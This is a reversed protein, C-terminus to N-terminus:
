VELIMDNLIFFYLFLPAGVFWFFLSRVLLSSPSSSLCPFFSVSGYGAGPADHAAEPRQVLLSVLPGAGAAFASSRPCRQPLLAVVLESQRGWAPHRRPAGVRQLKGYFEAPLGCRTTAHTGRRADYCLICRLLLPLSSM